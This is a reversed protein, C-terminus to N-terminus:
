IIIVIWLNQYNKNSYYLNINFNIGKTYHNTPKIFAVIELGQYILKLFLPIAQIFNFHIIM